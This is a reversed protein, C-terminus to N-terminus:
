CINMMLATERIRGHKDLPYMRALRGAKDAPLLYFTDYMKLPIFIKERLFDNFDIGSIVEVLYALIDYAQGYHFAEGPHCLLPLQAMEGVQESLTEARGNGKIGCTFNMVERITIASKAPVLVMSDRGSGSLAVMPDKFEPIYKSVPDSLLFHGQEYLMMVATATIPKTMSALQFIADEKMPTGQQTDMLGHAEHWVLRGKRCVMTVSGAIRGAEIHQDVVNAIRQLRETSLGVDEPSATPFHQGSVFITLIQCCFLLGYKIISFMITKKM